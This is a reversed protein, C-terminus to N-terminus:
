ESAKDLDDLDALEVIIPEPVIGLEELEDELAVMDNHGRVQGLAQLSIENNVYAQTANAVMRPPLMETLSRAVDASREDLWGFRGALVATRQKM